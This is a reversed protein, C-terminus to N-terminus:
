ESYGEIEDDAYFEVDNEASLAHFGNEELTYVLLQVDAYAFIDRLLIVVEQWNIQDLGCDLKPKDITSVFNAIAHTKMTKLTKSLISLNPKDFFREKTVLNYIYRKGTSDWFPYVQGMFFKAKRCTSRLCSIRHSLINAFGKSLRADVSKCHGISTPQQLFSDEAGYIIQLFEDSTQAPVTSHLLLCDNYREDTAIIANTLEYPIRIQYEPEDRDVVDLSSFGIREKTLNPQHNKNNKMLIPLNCESRTCLTNKFAPGTAVVIRNQKFTSGPAFHTHSNAPSYKWCRAIKAEICM